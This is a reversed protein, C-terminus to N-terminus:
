DEVHDWTQMDVGAECTAPASRTCSLLLQHQAGPLIGRSTTSGGSSSRATSRAHGAGPLTSGARGDIYHGRIALGTPPHDFEFQDIDRAM